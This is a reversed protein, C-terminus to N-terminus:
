GCGESILGRLERWREEAIKVLGRMEGKGVVGGGVKEIRLVEMGGERRERERVVVEVEEDCCGAEFGDVDVLVWRRKGEDKSLTTGVLGGGGGGSNEADFIGFTTIIPLGNLRLPKADSILPSCLVSATDANWWALPLRTTRLAALLALWATALPPGSLSLVLLTIHLTYFAKIEPLDPETEAEEDATTTPIDLSMSTQESVSAEAPPQSQQSTSSAPPPHYWIRLDEMSVLQSTHLLTLVRHSLAQAETSPPAGPLHSPSCGTSLEVNPVLLNLNAMEEADARRAERKTEMDKIRERSATGGYRQQVEEFRTLPKYDVVDSANLIEARIGCVVATDGSRVVASGHCHTLSGTNISTKRSESPNRGSPRRSSPSSLHAHLYSRPALGPQRKPSGAGRQKYARAFLDGVKEHYNAPGTADHLSAAPSPSILAMKLDRGLVAPSVGTTEAHDFGHLYNLTYLLRAQLAQNQQWSRHFVVSIRHHHVPLTRQAGLALCIELFRSTSILAVDERHDTPAGPLRDRSLTIDMLTTGTFRRSIPSSIYPIDLHKLLGTTFYQGKDKIRIWGNKTYLVERAEINVQRCTLLISTTFHYRSSRKTFTKEALLIENYIKDRIERPFSLLQLSQEHSRRAPM